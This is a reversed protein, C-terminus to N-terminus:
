FRWCKEHPEERTVDGGTRGSVMLSSNKFQSFMVDGGSIEGQRSPKSTRSKPVTVLKGFAIPWNGCKTDVWRPVCYTFSSGILIFPKGSGSCLRSTALKSNRARLAGGLRRITPSGLTSTVNFSVGDSREENCGSACSTAEHIPDTVFCSTCRQASSAAAGIPFENAAKRPWKCFVRRQRRSGDLTAKVRRHRAGEAFAAHGLVRSQAYLAERHRIGVKAPRGGVCLVELDREAKSSISSSSAVSSASFRRAKARVM